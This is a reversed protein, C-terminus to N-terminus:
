SHVGPSTRAKKIVQALKKSKLPIKLRSRRSCDQMACCGFSAGEGALMRSIWIVLGSIGSSMEGAWFKDM